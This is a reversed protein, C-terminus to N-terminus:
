FSEFRGMSYKKSSTTQKNPITQGQPQIKRGAPQQAIVVTTSYAFCALLAIMTMSKPKM